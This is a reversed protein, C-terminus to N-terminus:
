KIIDTIVKYAMGNRNSVYKIAVGVVQSSTNAVIKSNKIINNRISTKSVNNLTATEAKLLSHSLIKFGFELGIEVIIFFYLLM